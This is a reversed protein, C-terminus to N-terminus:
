LRQAFTKRAMTPRRARQIREEHEVVAAETVVEPTGTAAARALKACITETIGSEGTLAAADTKLELTAAFSGQADEYETAELWIEPQDLDVVVLGQGDQRELVEFGQACMAQVWDARTFAANVLRGADARLQEYEREVSPHLDELGGAIRQLQEALSAWRGALGPDAHVLEPACQLLALAREVGARRQRERAIWRTIGPRYDQTPAAAVAEALQAQLAAPLADLRLGARALEADRFAALAAVAQDRQAQAHANLVEGAARTQVSAGSLALARERSRVQAQLRDRQGQAEVLRGRLAAEYAEVVELEAEPHPRAPGAVAAVATGLQMAAARTQAAAQELQQELDTARRWAAAKALRRALRREAEALAGEVQGAFGAVDATLRAAYAELRAPDQATGADLAALRPASLTLDPLRRAAEDLRAVLGQFRGEQEAITRNARTLRRQREAERRREEEAQRRAQQQRRRAAEAQRRAERAAERAVSERRRVAALDVDRTTSRFSVTTTSM